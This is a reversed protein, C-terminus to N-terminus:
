QQSHSHPSHSLGCLRLALESLTFQVPEPFPEAPVSHLNSMRNLKSHTLPALAVRSLLLTAVSYPLLGDQPCAPHPLSNTILAAPTWGTGDRVRCNLGGAGMTTHPTGVCSDAM